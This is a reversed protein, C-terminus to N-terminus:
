GWQRLHALFGLFAFGSDVMAALVTTALFRGSGRLKDASVAKRKAVVTHFWEDGKRQDLPSGKMAMYGIIGFFLGDVYFALSRGLGAKLGCVRGSEDLVVLGCIMKGPTSGHFAECVAHFSVYGVAAILFAIVSAGRLRSLHQQFAVRDGHVAVLLMLGFVFASAIQIIWHCALDVLRAGARILFGATTPLTSTDLAYGGFSFTPEAPKAQQLETSM